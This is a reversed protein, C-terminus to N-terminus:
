FRKLDIQVLEQGGHLKAAYRINKEVFQVLINTGDFGRRFWDDCRVLRSIEVLEWHRFILM